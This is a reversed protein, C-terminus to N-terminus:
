AQSGVTGFGWRRLMERQMADGLARAEAADPAYDLVTCVVIFAELCAAADWAAEGPFGDRAMGITVAIVETLLSPWFSHPPWEPPLPIRLRHVAVRM